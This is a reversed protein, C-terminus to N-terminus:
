QCGGTLVDYHSDPYQKLRDLEHAWEDKKMEAKAMVVVIGKKLEKTRITLLDKMLDLTAGLDRSGTPCFAWSFYKPDSTIWQAPGFLYYAGPSIAGGATMSAYLALQTASGAKVREIYSKSQSDKLDIVALQGNKSVLMDVKGEVAQKGLRGELLKESDEIKFNLEALKNFLKVLSSRVLFHVRALSTEEGALLLVAGSEQILADLHEDAWKNIREQTWYAPDKKDCLHNVVAHLINGSILRSDPVSAISAPRIKAVYYLFWEHPLFFLKDLSSHSEKDRLPIASKIQWQASPQVTGRELIKEMAPVKLFGASKGSRLYDRVPITITALDDGAWARLRDYLPHPRVTEGRITEPLCLVLRRCAFFAQASRLADQKIRSKSDSVICGQKKLYATESPKLFAHGEGPESDTFTWWVLNQAVELFAAPHNVSQPSGKEASTRRTFTFKMILLCAELDIRSIKPLSRAGLITSLQSCMERLVSLQLKREAATADERDAGIGMGSKAWENLLTVLTLVDEIPVGSEPDALTGPFLLELWKRLKVEEKKQKAADIKSLHDEIGKQIADGWTKSGTGPVQEVASSLARALRHGLPQIQLNLFELMRHLNLPKWLLSLTLPLIQLVPAASADFEASFRPIGKEEIIYPLSGADGTILFVPSEDAVSPSGSIADAIATDSEGTLIVLSGDGKLKWGKERSILHGAFEFLDSGRDASASGSFPHEKQTIVAGNKRLVEFLKQYLGPLENEKEYCDIELSGAISEDICQMVCLLRDPEGNQFGPLTPHIKKLISESELRAMDRLRDHSKADDKTVWGSMRVEDRIRLVARATAIPEAQFSRAYFRKDGLSAEIAQRMAEIRLGFPVRPANLGCMTELAMLLGALGVRKEGIVPKSPLPYVPGDFHLGFFLRM